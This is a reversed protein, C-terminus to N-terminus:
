QQVEKIDVTVKLSPDDSVIEIQGKIRRSIGSTIRISSIVGFHESPIGVLTMDDCSVATNQM